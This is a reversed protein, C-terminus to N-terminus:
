WLITVTFATFVSFWSEDISLAPPTLKWGMSQTSIALISLKIHNILCHNIFQYEELVM